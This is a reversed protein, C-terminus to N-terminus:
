YVAEQNKLNGTAWVQYDAPVTIEANFHGYDNYFEYQGTYPYTNWGDIDDYVTIRPFFYSIFFAGADIQGTRIFSGKNLTYSYNIDFHIQQHPLVKPGYVYMNTGRINHKNTPLLQHDINIAEIKVGDTLDEMAIPQTRVSGKQYLNPYLKFVMYKFTDPSNNVYDIGVTGKIERTAPEFSVKIDYDAKNQWYAKGPLGNMSRTSTHYAKQINTAIPLQQQAYATKFIFLSLICSIRKINLM